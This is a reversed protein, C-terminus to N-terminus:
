NADYIELNYIYEIDWKDKFPIHILKYTNNTEESISQIVSLDKEIKHLEQIKTITEKVTELTLHISYITEDKSSFGILIEKIIYIKM